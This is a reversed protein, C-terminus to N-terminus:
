KNVFHDIFEEGVEQSKVELIGTSVIDKNYLEKQSCLMGFSEFGQLKGKTILLGNPMLTNLMAVVVKMNTKVNPAGCVIQIHNENGVDVKCLHLHTNPIDNCEVVNGVVFNKQNYKEIDINTIKLVFDKIINDFKLFGKKINLYSSVNNISISNIDDNSYNVLFGNGKISKTIKNDINNDVVKIVMIDNLGQKNYFISIM